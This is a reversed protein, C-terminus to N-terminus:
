RRKGFVSFFPSFIPSSVKEPSSDTSFASVCTRSREEKRANEAVPLVHHHHHCPLSPEWEGCGLQERETFLREKKNLSSTVGPEEREFLRIPPRLVVVLHVSATLTAFFQLSTRLSSAARVGRKQERKGGKAEKSAEVHVPFGNASASQRHNARECVFLPGFSYWTVSWQLLAIDNRRNCLLINTEVM